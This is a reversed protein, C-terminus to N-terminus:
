DNNTLFPGQLSIARSLAVYVLQQDNRKHYEYFVTDYTGGQSKHITITCAEILPFQATKCSIIMSKMQINATRRSVPVWNRQLNDNSRVHAHCKLRALRGVKPDEFSLRERRIFNDVWGVKRLVGIAGNVLGDLVDINARIKYPKGVLLKLMYSLGGTEEPKMKHLANRVCRLQEADRHGTYADVAVCEVVEEGTIANANHNQVDVVKLFLRISEPFNSDVYENTVFRSDITAQEESTLKEGDGIKTLIESFMVDSQRMVQDLPYYELEQFAVKGFYNQKDRKHIPSQRVPPLQCLDGCVIMNFGGLLASSSAIQQLREDLRRLLQSGLMSCEDLVVKRVDKFATRCAQLMEFSMGSDRNSIPLRFASHVMTGGLAAAAMGTSACTVYANYTCDHKQSFRNVIEMILKMVFTKGCGAPGTLFIQLAPGGDILRHLVELILDRQRVNTKRAMECFQEHSMVNERKRVVSSMRGLVAMTIDDNADDRMAQVFDYTCAKSKIYEKMKEEM